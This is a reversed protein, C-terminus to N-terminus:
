LGIIPSWEDFYNREVRCLDAGHPIWSSIGVSCNDRQCVTRETFPCYFGGLKGDCRKCNHDKLERGLENEAIKRNYDGFTEYEEAEMTQADSQSSYEDLISDVDELWFYNGEEGFAGKYVADKFLERLTDAESDSTALYACLSRDSLIPGPYRLIANLLVHGLVYTALKIKDFPPKQVEKENLARLPQVVAPSNMVIRSMYLTFHSDLHPRGLLEALVASLSSMTELSFDETSLSLRITSFGHFANAISQACEATDNAPIRLEFLEPKQTLATANARSFDGVPICLRKCWGVITHGFLGRIGTSTLDYDTAVLVTQDDVRSQFKAILDTDDFKPNPIWNKIEVYEQELKGSLEKELNDLQNSDDDILLISPSSFNNNM